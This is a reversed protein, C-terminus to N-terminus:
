LLSPSSIWVMAGASVTATASYLAVGRCAVYACGRLFWLLPPFWGVTKGAKAHRLAGHGFAQLGWLRAGCAPCRIIYVCACVRPFVAPRWLSPLLAADRMGGPVARGPLGLCKARLFSDGGLCFGRPPQGVAPDSIREPLFASLASPQKFFILYKQLCLAGGCMAFRRHIAPLGWRM